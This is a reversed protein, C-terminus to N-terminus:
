LLAKEREREREKKKKKQTGYIANEWGNLHQPAFYPRPSASYCAAWFALWM